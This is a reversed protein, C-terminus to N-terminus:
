IWVQAMKSGLWFLELISSIQYLPNLCPKLNIPFSHVNISSPFLDSAVFPSIQFFSSTFHNASPSPGQLFSSSVCLWLLFLPLHLACLWCTLMFFAVCMIIMIYHLLFSLPVDMDHLMYCPSIFMAFLCLHHLVVYYFIFLICSAFYPLPVWCPWPMLM